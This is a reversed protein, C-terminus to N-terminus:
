ISRFHAGFTNPFFGPYQRVYRGLHGGPCLNLLNMRDVNLLEVGPLNRFAQRIGHDENYIILPGKRQVYRRNRM